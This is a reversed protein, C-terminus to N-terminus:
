KVRSDIIQRYDRCYLPVESWCLNTAAMNPPLGNPPLTKGALSAGHYHTHRHCYWTDSVFMVHM